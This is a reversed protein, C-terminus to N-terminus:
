VSGVIVAKSESPNPPVALPRSQEENVLVVRNFIDLLLAPIKNEAEVEADRVLQKHVSESFFTRTQAMEIQVLPQQDDINLQAWCSLEFVPDIKAM